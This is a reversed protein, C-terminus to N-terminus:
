TLFTGKSIPQRTENLFHLFTGGFLTTKSLPVLLYTLISLEPLPTHDTGSFEDIAIM